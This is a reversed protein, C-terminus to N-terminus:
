KKSGMGLYRMVHEVEYSSKPESSALVADPIRRREATPVAQTERPLRVEFNNVLGMSYSAVDVQPTMGTFITEYGADALQQLLENKKYDSVWFRLHKDEALPLVNTVTAGLAQLERTLREATKQRDSLLAM